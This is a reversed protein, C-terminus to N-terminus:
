TYGFARGAAVAGHLLGIARPNDGSDAAEIAQHITATLEDKPLQQRPEVLKRADRIAADADGLALSATLSSQFSVM